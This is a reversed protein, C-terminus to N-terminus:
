TGMGRAVAADNCAEDCATPLELPLPVIAQKAADLQRYAADLYWWPHHFCFPTIERSSVLKGLIGMVEGTTREPANYAYRTVADYRNRIGPHYYDPFDIASALLTALEVVGPTFGGVNEEIADRLEPPLENRRPAIMTVLDDVFEFRQLSERPLRSHLDNVFEQDGVRPAAIAYTGRPKIGSAALFASFLLAQGGGLSHGTVWVPKSAGGFEIVKNTVKGIIQLLSSWMGSHVTGRIGYGPSTGAGILDTVIWEGLDYGQASLYSEAADLRTSVADPLLRSLLSDSVINDSEETATAVRDTGRFVVFVASSTGIVMAEPDRAFGLKALEDDRTGMTVYEYRPAVNTASAPKGADYFM